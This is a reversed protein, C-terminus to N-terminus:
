AMVVEAGEICELVAGSHLAEAAAQVEERPPM